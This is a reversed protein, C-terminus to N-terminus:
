HEASAVQALETAGPREALQSPTVYGMDAANWRASLNIPPFM